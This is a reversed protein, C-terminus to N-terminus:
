LSMYMHYYRIYDDDKRTKVLCGAGRLLGGVISRHCMSEDFCMCGLTFDEGERARICVNNLMDRSGGVNAKIDRLFWPVYINDFAERNWKGMKKLNLYKFFLEKTPSLEPVHVMWPSINRASRVILLQNPSERDMDSINALTVM